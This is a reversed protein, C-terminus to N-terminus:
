VCLHSPQIIGNCAVEVKTLIDTISLGNLM